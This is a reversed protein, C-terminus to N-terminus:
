QTFIKILLLSWVRSFPFLFLLFFFFLYYFAHPWLTFLLWIQERSSSLYKHKVWDRDQSFMTGDLMGATQLGLCARQLLMFFREWACLCEMPAPTRWLRTGCPRGMQMQMSQWESSVSSRPGLLWAARPQLWSWGARHHRVTQTVERLNHLILLNVGTFFEALHQCM